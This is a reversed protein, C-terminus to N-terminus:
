SSDELTRLVTADNSTELRYGQPRLRANTQTIQDATLKVGTLRLQGPSYEIAAPVASAAAQSV